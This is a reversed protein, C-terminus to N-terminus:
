NSPYTLYGLHLEAHRLNLEIRDAHSMRGFAPSDFQAVEGNQLRKFARILRDAAEPVTLDELGVTGEKLGPIRVGRPLGHQLMSNLRLRIIWRIFFPPPKIPYGDYGYEIWLALHSLIQGPTWNGSALLKGSHHAELINNIESLCDEIGSFRLKRYNTANKPDISTTM